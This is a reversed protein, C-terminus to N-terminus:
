QDEEDKPAAKNQLKYRKPKNKQNQAEIRESRRQRDEEKQAAEAAKRREERDSKAKDEEDLKRNWHKALFYEQPVQFISQAIWYVGMVAPWTFGIWLSFGPGIAYMMIATNGAAMPRGSFKQTLWMSLFSAAASLLPILFLAGTVTPWSPVQALNLGLFSFGIPVLGEIEPVAELAKAFYTSDQLLNAAALDYTMNRPEGRVGLVTAIEEVVSRDLGWIYELPRRVAGFLAIIVPFPLLMWLCGGTMSVNESQYLKAQEQQLKQRDKGYKKTLEQMKPQIRQQQLMGRKGKYAFYFLAIKATLAFLLIALGYNNTLNYLSRLLVGVPYAIIDWM